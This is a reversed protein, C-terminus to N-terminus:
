NSDVISYCGKNNSNDIMITSAMSLNIKNNLLFTNSINIKLKNWSICMKVQLIIVIRINVMTSSWWVRKLLTM